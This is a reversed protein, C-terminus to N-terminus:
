KSSRSTSRMDNRYKAIDVLALREFSLPLETKANNAAAAALRRKMYEFEACNAAPSTANWESLAQEAGELNGDAMFAVATNYSAYTNAKECKDLSYMWEGCERDERHMGIVSQLLSPRSAKPLFVQRLAKLEFRMMLGGTTPEDSVIGENWLTCCRELAHAHVFGKGFVAFTKLGTCGANGARCNGTAVGFATHRGRRREESHVALSYELSKRCHDSVAIVANFTVCVRDGVVYNVVGRHVKSMSLSSSLYECYADRFDEGAYEKAVRVHTFRWNCLSISTRKDRLECTFRMLSEGSGTSKISPESANESSHSHSESGASGHPGRPRADSLQTAFLASAPRSADPSEPPLYEDRVYLEDETQLLSQPLYQKYEALNRLVLSLSEQMAFVESIVASPELPEKTSFTSVDHMLFQLKKLERIVSALMCTTLGGCASAILLVSVLTLTSAQHSGHLIYGHPIEIVVLMQLNGTINLPSVLVTSGGIQMLRRSHFANRLSGTRELIGDFLERIGGTTDTLVNVPLMKGQADRQASAQRPLSTALLSGGLTVVHVHSEETVRMNSLTEHLSGFSYDAAVVGELTHTATNLVALVSTYGPVGNMALSRENSDDLNALFLYPETWHVESDPNAVSLQYWPRLFPDWYTAHDVRESGPSGWELCYQLLRSRGDGYCNSRTYVACTGGCQGTCSDDVGCSCTGCGGALDWGRCKLPVDTPFSTEPPFGFLEVFGSPCIPNALIMYTYGDVSTFYLGVIARKTSLIDTKAHLFTMPEPFTRNLSLTGLAAFNRLLRQAAPGINLVEKITLSVEEGNRLILIEVTDLLEKHMENYTIVWSVVGVLMASSFLITFLLHLLSVRRKSIFTAVVVAILVAILGFGVCLLIIHTVEYGNDYSEVQTPHSRPPLGCCQSVVCALGAIAVYGSVM